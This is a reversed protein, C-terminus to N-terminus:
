LRLESSFHLEKISHLEKLVDKIDMRDVMLELSCEVGIKMLSSLCEKLEYVSYTAENDIQELLITSDVIDMVGHPLVKKSFEHLNLGNRFMQDTPRRGTFMELLLIGYSYMDGKTSVEAGLGYEPPIYGISGRIAVSSSEKGHAHQANKPLIKALGFDGVYATMDDGLLVNSPKLDCHVIPSDRESQNHLYDLSSAIDIAINLREFLNLGKLQHSDSSPHLWSELSGNAIFEYVLAKFDNGLFDVSSCATLIKLLNRHRVGKLVACEAIFSKSAGHEMLNLVKVAILGEDQNLHGRYVSGYNGAGVLNATSFGDTAKHLDSYSVRLIDGLSQPFHPKLKNDERSYIILLLIVLVFSPILISPLTVKLTTHSSKKKSVQYHCEHLELFPSGGCLKPNGFVSFASINQFIGETPVSGEINNFSLNLNQLASLNVLEKPIKGSVNNRSLDLYQLGKLSGLSPPIAGLFSNGELYLYELSSCSGLTLPIEGSLKNESVDFFNLFKLQGVEVPISGNLLNNTLELTTLFTPLVVERSPITGSFKNYSLDLLQLNPNNLISSIKGILFNNGLYMSSLRTMNRVSSPIQGSLQNEYLLLEEVKQLNGISSPISGTFLNRSMYLSDLNQLNGLEMPINGSIHNESIWLQHLQSFNSISTPLMGGFQNKAVHLTRLNSCNTLSTFFDLDGARGSGLNNKIVRLVRLDKLDGVNTSVKGTFQNGGIDIIQLNSANFLSTPITGSFKNQGILYQQLLPLTFGINAPLSGSLKNDDMDLYELSSLNYLSSPVKGSLFCSGLSLIKLSKLQHLNEPIGGGLRNVLLSMFKLSTLNGLSPPIGGTLMNYQLALQVIKRFSGFQLPINGVFNNHHLSLNLLNSCLSINAPLEGGLSNHSLRLIKLRSLRGFEPPLEGNFSNNQLLLVRLFSLNGVQPPISGVLGRSDLNLVTVREHRHGCAVGEWDCLHNSNNWSGFVNQPDLTIKSKLSLLALRDIENGIISATSLIRWSCICLLITFHLLLFNQKTM